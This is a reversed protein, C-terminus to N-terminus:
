EVAYFYNNSKVGSFVERKRGNMLRAARRGSLGGIKHVPRADVM